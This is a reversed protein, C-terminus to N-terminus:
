MQMEGFCVCMMGGGCLSTEDRRRQGCWLCACWWKSRSASRVYFIVVAGWSGRGEGSCGCCCCCCPRGEVCLGRIMWAKM